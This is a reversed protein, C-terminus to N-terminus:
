KSLKRMSQFSAMMCKFIIRNSNKSQFTRLLQVQHNIEWSPLSEKMLKLRMRWQLTRCHSSHFFKWKQLQMKFCSKKPNRILTLNWHELEEEALEIQHCYHHIFTWSNKFPLYASVMSQLNLKDWPHSPYNLSLRTKNAEMWATLRIKSPGKRWTSIMIRSTDLFTTQVHCNNTSCFWSRYLNLTM